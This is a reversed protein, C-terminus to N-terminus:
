TETTSMRKRLPVRWRHTNLILGMDLLFSQPEISTLSAPNASNFFLGSRLAIGTEGMGANRGGAATELEGIGFGSYPSSTSNQAFLGIIPVTILLVLIILKM